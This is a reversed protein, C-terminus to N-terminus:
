LPEDFPSGKDEYPAVESDEPMQNANKDAARLFAIVESASVIGPATDVVIGDALIEVGTDTHRTSYTM